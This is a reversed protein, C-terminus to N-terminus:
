ALLKEQPADPQCRSRHWDPLLALPAISLSFMRTGEAAAAAVREFM